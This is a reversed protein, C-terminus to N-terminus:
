FKLSLSFTLRAEKRNQSNSEVPGSREHGRPTRTGLMKISSSRSQPSSPLKKGNFGLGLSPNLSFFLLPEKRNKTTQNRRSWQEHRPTRTSAVKSQPPGPVHPSSPLKEDLVRFGRFKLTSTSFLPLLSGRKERIKQNNSKSPGSRTRTGKCGQASM